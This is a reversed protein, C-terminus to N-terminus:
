GTAKKQKAYPIAIEDKSKSKEELGVEVAGICGQVANASWGGGRGEDRRNRWGECFRM